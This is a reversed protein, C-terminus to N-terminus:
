ANVAVCTGTNADFKSGEACSQAQQEHKGYNCGMAFSTAPALTLCLAVTLTKIKM